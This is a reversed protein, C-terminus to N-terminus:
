GTSRALAARRRGRRPGGSGGRGILPSSAAFRRSLTSSVGRGIVVARVVVVVGGMVTMGAYAPIWFARAGRGIVVAAGGGMVTMGAYAPIWFARAGRGRGLVRGIDGEVAV